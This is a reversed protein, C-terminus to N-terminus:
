IVRWVTRVQKSIQFRTKTTDVVLCNFAWPPLPLWVLVSMIKLASVTQHFLAMFAKFVTFVISFFSNYNEICEAKCDLQL